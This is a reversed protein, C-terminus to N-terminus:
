IINMLLISVVYQQDVVWQEYIGNHEEIVRKINKLGIGQSLRTQRTTLESIDFDNSIDILLNDNFLKITLAITKGQPSPLRKVANLSNDILNGLVVALIDNNLKLQQPLLAKVTLHIGAQEALGKKENLLFNLVPNNTFFSDSREVDTLSLQLYNTAEQYRQQQLMGLLLIYQNKLDHKLSAMKEQSHIMKKTYALESEFLRQQNAAEAIENINKKLTLYLYVICLNVYVLCILVITVLAEPNATLNIDSVLAIGFLIVSLLPISILAM